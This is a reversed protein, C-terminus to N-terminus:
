VFFISIFFCIFLINIIHLQVKKSNNRSIIRIIVFQSDRNRDIEKKKKRFCNQFNHPNNNNRQINVHMIQLM